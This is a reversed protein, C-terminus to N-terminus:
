GWRFRIRAGDWIAKSGAVVGSFTITSTNSFSGNTSVTAVTEEDSLPTSEDSQYLRAFLTLSSGSWNQGRYRVVLSASDATDFDGPMDTLEFFVEGTLSTNNVWDSDSPTDPDDDVSLYLDITTDLEDVVNTITGDDTPAVTTALGLDGAEFNDWRNRSGGNHSGTVGCLTNGTINTDTESHITAGDYVGTITSGDAEIYLVEGTGSDAEADTGETIVTKTGTVYRNLETDSGDFTRKFQYFTIDSAHVRCSIGPKNGTINNDWIEAQAYHDDTALNSEARIGHEGSGSVAYLRNSVTEFDGVIETWTLDPGVTTSDGQDFSETIVTGVVPRAQYILERGMVIRHLGRRNTKLNNWRTKDTRITGHLILLEAIMARLRSPDDLTISLDNEFTTAVNRPMPGDLDDGLDVAGPITEPAEVRVLCRGAQALVDGRLDIQSFAGATPPRFPDDPLGSGVLPALYFRAM